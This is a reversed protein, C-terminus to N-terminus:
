NIDDLINLSLSPKGLLLDWVLLKSFEGIYIFAEFFYFLVKRVGSLVIIVKKCFIKFKYLFHLCM